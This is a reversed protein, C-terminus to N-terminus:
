FTISFAALRRFSSINLQQEIKIFNTGDVYIYSKIQYDRKLAVSLITIRAFPEANKLLFYVDVENRALKHAEM